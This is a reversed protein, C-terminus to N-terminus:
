SVSQSIESCDYVRILVRLCLSGYVVYVYGCVSCVQVCFCSCVWICAFVPGPMLVLVRVCGVVSMFACVCM